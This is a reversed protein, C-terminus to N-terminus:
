SSRLSRHDPLDDNPKSIDAPNSGGDRGRRRLSPMENIGLTVFLHAQLTLPLKRFAWLLAAEDEDKIPDGVRPCPEGLVMGQKVPRAGEQGSTPPASSPEGGEEPLPSTPAGIPADAAFLESVTTGLAKAISELRAGKPATRGSLWQTVAPRSVGAKDALQDHNLGAADMALKLGDKFAM